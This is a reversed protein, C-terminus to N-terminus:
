LPSPCLPMRKTGGSVRRSTRSRISFKFAHVPSDKKKKYRQRRNCQVTRRRPGLLIRCKRLCILSVARSTELFRDLTVLAQDIRALPARIEKVIQTVGPEPEPIEAFGDQIVLAGQRKIRMM